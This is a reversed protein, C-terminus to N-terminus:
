ASGAGQSLGFGQNRALDRKAVEARVCAELDVELGTDNEDGPRVAGALRVQELRKV